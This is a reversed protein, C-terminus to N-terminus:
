QFKEALNFQKIVTVVSFALRVMDLNTQMCIPFVGGATLTIPEQLNHLFYVLTSKYRRDASIWNSHFLSDALDQCDDIIINCLYCFPFTEMSVDFMFLCTAVGSWFTSFFMLNIMSLGLVTGILLFEVFITGSFAPRLANVYDLILRHDRICNTLEEMYEDETKGPESRLNRLRDKLLTIHCRGMLMYALPSVDTCMDMYICELMLVCEAISTLYFHLETNILPFYMRWAHRGQLLFYPFNMVVFTTYLIHFMVYCLNAWAVYRHVTSREADRVSEDLRNLILKAQERKRFGIMTFACKFSSGYMNVGIEFSSLFESASFSKFRKIYEISISIPMFILMLCVMFASWLKYVLSWRKESPEAWGFSWIMRDLYIFADRSHVVESLPKEKTHPFWKTLM